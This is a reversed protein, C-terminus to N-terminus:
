RASSLGPPCAARTVPNEENASPGSRFGHVFSDRLMSVFARGAVIRILSVRCLLIRILATDRERQAPAPFLLKRFQPSYLNPRRRDSRHKPQTKGPKATRGNSCPAKRLATSSACRSFRITLPRPFASALSPRAVPQPFPHSGLVSIKSSGHDYAAARRFDPGHRRVM